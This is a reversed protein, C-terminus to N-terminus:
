IAKSNIKVFYKIYLKNLICLLPRKLRVKSFKIVKLDSCVIFLSDKGKQIILGPVEGKIDDQIKYTGFEFFENKYPIHCKLWPTFARIRRSIEEATEKEFNLISDKLSIQRYYSSDKDNQKKKNKYIEQFSNMLIVVDKRAQNCCKLKLSLGTEDDSIPVKSQYLIDGTDYNNDMLHFTVGSFKENHLITQLYPNPGRYKPLLSPHVNICAINSTNIAEQAFKEGWSGVLIIDAKLKHIKDRFKKSNVSDAKIDYLGLAKSFLRNSSPMFIDYMFQRIRNNIVNEYRFVGVLDHESQMVGAVLSDFMEGYGMVVIKM